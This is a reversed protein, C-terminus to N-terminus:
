LAGSSAPAAALRLLAQGRNTEMEARDRQMQLLIFAKRADRATELFAKYTPDGYALDEIIKDTIKEGREERGERIQVGLAAVMNKRYADFTGGPGYLSWLEAYKEENKDAERWLEAIPTVGFQEARDDMSDMLVEGTAPDVLPARM